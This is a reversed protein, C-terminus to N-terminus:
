GHSVSWLNLPCRSASRSATLRGIRQYVACRRSYGSSYAGHTEPAASKLAAQLSIRSIWDSVHGLWLRGTLPGRGRERDLVSPRDDARSLWRLVLWRCQSM